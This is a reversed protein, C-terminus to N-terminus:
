RITGELASVMPPKLHSKISTVHVARAHSSVYNARDLNMLRTANLDLFSPQFSDVQM